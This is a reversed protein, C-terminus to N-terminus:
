ALPEPGMKELASQLFGRGAGCAVAINVMGQALENGIAAARGDGAPLDHIGFDMGISGKIKRVADRARNFGGIDDKVFVVNGFIDQRKGPAIGGQDRNAADAKIVVGVGFTVADFLLGSNEGSLTEIDDGQGLRDRM